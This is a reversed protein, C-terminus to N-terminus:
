GSSIAPLDDSYYSYLEISIQILVLGYGIKNPSM